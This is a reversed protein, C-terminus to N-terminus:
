TKVLHADIEKTIKNAFDIYSDTGSGPIVESVKEYELSWKVIGGDVKATVQFTAKLSKFNENVEGGFITYKITMNEDDIHEVREKAKSRKGDMTYEWQKVAGIHVHWDGEHLDVGHLTETCMNPAQHFESRFVKFFKAAPAKIPIETEVKGILAMDQKVIHADIEKTFKNAFDIYSEIGSGPIVESPKEYELIWKVIGGNGKGIVQLTAKLSKFNETVEGDFITYKITMNKEDVHEVREKAKTRKGDMTYEWQKVAGVNVHWDGEHLDVGHITEPCMNPAQHLESRFVKFFKAAPAKIEIETEAKGSLAM